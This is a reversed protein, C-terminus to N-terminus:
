TSERLGVAQREPLSELQEVYQCIIDLAIIFAQEPSDSNRVLEILDRENKTM